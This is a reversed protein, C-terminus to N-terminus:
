KMMIGVQSKKSEETKRIAEELQKTADLISESQIESKTENNINSPKLMQLITHIM